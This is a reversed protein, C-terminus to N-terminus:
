RFRLIRYDEDEREGAGGRPVGRAQCEKDWAELEEKSPKELQAASQRTESFQTTLLHIRIVNYLSVKLKRQKKIM